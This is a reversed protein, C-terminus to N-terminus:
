GVCDALWASVATVEPMSVEHAIPYERWDVPYGRQLLWDRAARGMSIAVVTDATGHCMLIRVGRGVPSRHADLDAERPLYTSMALLGGLREPCRLAAHLAVAGGQSFGAIVIHGADIGAARERDVLTAVTAVSTELGDADARGEPDLSKIDYWARMEYGGNITVPRMPAHPFIFRVGLSAPLRLEPALPVFDNGDAGLGHLWIVTARAAAPELTVGDESELRRYSM